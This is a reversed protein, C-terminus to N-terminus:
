AAQLTLLKGADAAGGSSRAAASASKGWSRAVLVALSLFFLTGYLAALPAWQFGYLPSDDFSTLSAASAGGGAAGAPAAGTFCPQAGCSGGCYACPATVNGTAGPTDLSAPYSCCDYLPTSFANVAAPSSPSTYVFDTISGAKVGQAVQYDLFQPPPM